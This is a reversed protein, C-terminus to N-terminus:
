LVGMIGSKIERPSPPCGFVYMNIHVLKDVPEVGEGRFVGASISCTGIAVKPTKQNKNILQELIPRTKINVSGCLVIVDAITGDVFKYGFNALSRVEIDCGNCSGLNIHLLRIFRRRGKTEVRELLV